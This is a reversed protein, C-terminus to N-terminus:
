KLRITVKKLPSNTFNMEFREPYLIELKDYIGQLGFGPNLEAPFEPGSDYVDLCLWGNGSSVVIRIEGKSISKSLGHKIANEVLPQVIFRPIRWGKLSDPLEISYTLHDEFRITEVELYIKVMELEEEITTWDSKEKNISYRFLKSLSLAMHETKDANEHALGAISNLANYLFHPNVQSHLSNLEAKTKLERLSALKFENAKIIEKERQIYYGIFARFTAVVVCGVFLYSLQLIEYVGMQNGWKYFYMIFFASFPILSTALFNLLIRLMKNEVKRSILIEIARFLNIAPLGFVLLVFVTVGLLEPFRFIEWDSKIGSTLSEYLALLIAVLILGTAGAVNFRLLKNRIHEGVRIWFKVFLLGFILLALGLPLLLIVRTNEKLWVPIPVIPEFQKKAIRYNKEFDKSYYAQILKKDFDQMPRYWLKDHSNISSFISQPLNKFVFPNQLDIHFLNSVICNTIYNQLSDPPIIKKDVIRQIYPQTYDVMADRRQPTEDPNGKFKLQLPMAGFSTIELHVRETLGNLLSISNEVMLSDKSNYNGSISIRVFDKDMFPPTFRKNNDLTKVIARWPIEPLRYDDKQRCGMLGFLVFIALFTKM